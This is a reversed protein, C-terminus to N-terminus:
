VDGFNSRWSGFVKRSRDFGIPTTFGFFSASILSFYNIGNLLQLFTIWFLDSVFTEFIRSADNLLEVVPRVIGTSCSHHMVHDAHLWERGHVDLQLTSLLRKIYSRGIDSYRSISEVHGIALEMWDGSSPREDHFRRVVILFENRFEKVLRFKQAILITLFKRYWNKM